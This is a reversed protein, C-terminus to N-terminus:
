STMADQWAAEILEEINNYNKLLHKWRNSDNNCVNILYWRFIYKVILKDPVILFNEEFWKRCWELKPFDDELVENYEFEEVRCNPHLISEGELCQDGNADIPIRWIGSEEEYGVPPAGSWWFNGSDDEEGFYNYVLPGYVFKESM